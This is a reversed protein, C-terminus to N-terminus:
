VMHPDPISKSKTGPDGKFETWLGAFAFLPREENLAFWVVDEKEQDAPEARARIGLLQKGSGLLPKGAEALRALLSTNRIDTVPPGGFKPPPPM